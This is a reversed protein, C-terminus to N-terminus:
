EGSPLNAPRNDESDDTSIPDDSMAPPPLNQSPSGQDTSRPPSILAKFTHAAVNYLRYRSTRIMDCRRGPGATSCGEPGRGLADRLSHSSLFYM